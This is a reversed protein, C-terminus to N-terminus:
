FFTHFRNKLAYQLEQGSAGNAGMQLVLDFFFQDFDGSFV